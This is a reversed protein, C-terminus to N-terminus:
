YTIIRLRLERCNNDDTARRLVVREGDLEFYYAGQFGSLIGDIARGGYGIHHQAGDANRTDFLVIYRDRDGGVGHLLEQEEGKRTVIWGSDYAVSPGRAALGPGAAAVANELEALRDQLGAVQQQLASIADPSAPDSHIPLVSANVAIATTLITIALTMPRFM